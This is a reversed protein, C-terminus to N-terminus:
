QNTCPLTQLYDLVQQNDRTSTYRQKPHRENGIGLILKCALKNQGEPPNVKAYIPFQGIKMASRQKPHRENGIGLIHGCM